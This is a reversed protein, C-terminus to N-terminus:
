EWNRELFMYLNEMKCSRSGKVLLVGPEDQFMALAHLIQEASTVAVFEGTYGTLGSQVDVAHQGYFFCHSAKSAVVRQGLEQHAHLAESGLELMDGLVLVLRQDQALDRAQAISLFMSMPNANYTDDIFTWKGVQSTVFRQVVPVHEELGQIVAELDLGLEQAVAIVAMINESIHLHGPVLLSHHQGHSAIHYLVNKGQDMRKHCTYAVDLGTGSFFTMPVSKKKSEQDLEPYDANLCAWGQPRLYDLLTMKEEAVGKVSGLGALHCPGINLVVAVDPALIYGLEDMDGPESIGLELVWYDEQGSMELISLPLGIQNNLNRFNKGTPGATALVKTLMEKVTTKGASGTVGIVCAQSQERWFRALRGLAKTTDRVLLVPVGVDLPRSAVLACAGAAIAQQAFEHGDLQRGVICFFLDGPQVSRSDISVRTVMPDPHIDVSAGMAAAIQGVSLRM